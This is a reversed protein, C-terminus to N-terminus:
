MEKIEVPCSLHKKFFQVRKTNWYVHIDEILFVPVRLREGSYREWLLGYFKDDILKFYDSYKPGSIYAFIDM